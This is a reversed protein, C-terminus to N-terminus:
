LDQKKRTLLMISQLIKMLLKYEGDNETKIIIENEKFELIM